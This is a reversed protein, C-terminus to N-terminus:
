DIYARPSLSLFSIYIYNYANRESKLAKKEEQKLRSNQNKKGVCTTTHEGEGTYLNRFETMGEFYWARTTDNTHM